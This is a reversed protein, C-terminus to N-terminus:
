LRRRSARAFITSLSQYFPERSPPVGPPPYPVTATQKQFYLPRPYRLQTYSVPVLPRKAPCVYACSGCEICVDAGLKKRVEAKDLKLSRDVVAPRLYLIHILSLWARAMDM